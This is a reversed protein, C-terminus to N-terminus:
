QSAEAEITTGHKVVAALLDRLSSRTIRPNLITFKLYVESGITTRAVVARGDLLLRERITRNVKNPDGKDPVYRFLVTSLEPQCALELREDARVDVAVARALDVVYEICDALYTRGLTRFTVYPKLADFRRTTQISKGVLNPVGRDDDREPNLYAANRAQLEFRDGDRLLFAGCSIPQYFLKHFDVSVSDAREIGDLRHRERDSLALAGGYAADIHLWLDHNDARDALNPIPDLAGHDTTGATGVLAFPVLDRDHLDALTADLADADMRYREDTAVQVVSEEGLGLQAAAQAATFHAAESTVIRLRDAEAGVGDHKADRDFRERYVWERALLLAQFNSQTGGSTFVGDSGEPYGFLSCLADVVREECVSPAPAQDFSDMSQNSGAILTEAALAPATPPCQLHAVCDADYVDVTDSLVDERVEAITEALPQGTEPLVTREAFREALRDPDAGSYPASGSRIEAVLADRALDIANAYGETGTETGPFVDHDPQTPELVDHRGVTM